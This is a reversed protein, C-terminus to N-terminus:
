HQKARRVAEAGHANLDAALATLFAARLKQLSTEM